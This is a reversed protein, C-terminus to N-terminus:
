PTAVIGQGTMPGAVGGFSWSSSYCQSARYMAPPVSVMTTSCQRPEVASESFPALAAAADFAYLSGSSWIKVNLAYHSALALPATGSTENYVYTNEEYAAGNWIRSYESSQYTVTGANRVFTISTFGGEYSCLYLAVGNGGDNAYCTAGPLVMTPQIDSLVLSNALRGDANEALELRTVPFSLSIDVFGALNVAQITGSSSSSNRQELFVSGDAATWITEFTDATSYSGSLVDGYFSASAAGPAPAVVTLTQAASNNGPDGDGPRVAAAEVRLRAAGAALVATFACSVADGADVWINKAEDALVDDVFLRCDLRAGRQGALEAVVAGIVTPTGAVANQPAVIGTVALDPRLTPRLGEVTVVDTRRGDIGRVLGTVEVLAGAPIVGLPVTITNGARAQNIARLARGGTAVVKVHVREISGAPAALDTARHSTAELSATGDANLFVEATLVASGSRASLPRSGSDRYKDSNFRWRGANSHASIGALQPSDVASTVLPEQRCASGALTIAAAAAIGASRRGM